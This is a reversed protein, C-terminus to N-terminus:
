WDLNLRRFEGGMLGGIRAPDGAGGVQIARVGSEKLVVALDKMTSLPACKALATGGAMDHVCVFPRKGKLAKPVKGERIRLDSETVDLGSTAAMIECQTQGVQEIKRSSAPFDEAYRAYPRLRLDAERQLKADKWAYTRVCYGVEYFLDFETYFARVAHQFPVRPIFTGGTVHTQGSVLNNCMPQGDADPGLDRCVVHIWAKPFRRRVARAFALERMLDGIGGDQYLGIFLRRGAKKRARAFDYKAARVAQEENSAEIM